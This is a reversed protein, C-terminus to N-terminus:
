SHEHERPPEPGQTRPLERPAHHEAPTQLLQRAIAAYRIATTDDIGFVAALHLPDAGCTLAEELQRDVRLRELTATLGRCTETLWNESVARATMATQQNIILHPNATGPWRGRRHELWALLLCRTLEDLPRTRGTVTLRRNGLDIDGLHLERITKPRAAHVAALAVALRAAPTVAAATAQDIEAPQLPQILTLSRQGPYIGWTPDAFIRGTKKCHGFLSRLALVTQRRLSGRLPATAAIIDAATVERLHGYRGAWELLLPHVRNLNQRVTHENRPRSRPGGEGRTRLWHGVDAAIPAPLVALRTQMLATFSPVRDDHLLGALQLIEATRTVSLDRSHLAPSLASWAIMDPAQHDALVVALARGTETVIRPNWGRTGALEAAIHRAQQLADNTIKSAVWHAKDFYLSEGPIPLQLQTQGASPVSPEPREAAPIAPRPGTHGLQSMGAFSLQRCGGRRFDAPTIRRGTATISAQLWCLRCHEKKVAIVRGCGNCEGRQYRRTFDYCARCYSRLGYSAGFSLCDPCSTAPRDPDPRGAM